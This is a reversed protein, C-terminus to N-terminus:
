PSVGAGIREEKLTLGECGLDLAEYETAFTSRFRAWAEASDWRDITLFSDTADELTLLETGRYGDARAFLRAWDGDAAYRRVFEDRRAPHVDFRWLILYM